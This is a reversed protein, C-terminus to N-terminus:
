RAATDTMTGSVGPLLMDLEAWFDVHMAMDLLDFDGGVADFQNAVANPVTGHLTAASNLLPDVLPAVMPGAQLELQAMVSEINTHLTRVIVTAKSAADFSRAFIDLVSVAVKIASRAAPAFQHNPYAVAFGVLTMAASWQWQFAEHWGNLISSSTTLVQHNINTLEIAHRACKVAMDTALNGQRAAFSLFPRYLSICLHHYELELHLRQRQLWQPAFQEIELSSGDLVYAMGDKRSTKLAQPIQKTWETLTATQPGWTTALEEMTNPDDYVSDGEAINLPHSYFALNLTRATHYLKMRQLNLSLWTANDGIPPFTSGSEIAAELTDSPLEPMIHSDRILFPRGVKMGVKSDAEVVSWWLRRRHEREPRPMTAPSDLHLGLMYATRVALTIISDAMNHFSGGCVYLACLLHCQLTSISPSEVECALLTQARRYYWRGAMTPDNDELISGHQGSPRASAHYQMCMAVIIDVLASQKRPSGAPVNIYLSQYHTKFAAEDVIAYICTHYTEWYLNIFYGEQVASLYFGEENVKTLPALLRSSDEAVTPQELQELNSALHILMQDAQTSLFSSLRHTFFYLSSPGFWASHPSRAPRLYVGDWFKTKSSEQIASRPLAPSGGPPTPEQQQAIPTESSRAQSLRAELEKVRRKLREIEDQAQPLTTIVSASSKSCERGRARCNLCPINDDCKIRQLRCGDCARGVQKRKRRFGLRQPAEIARADPQSM